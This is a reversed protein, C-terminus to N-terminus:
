YLFSLGCWRGWCPTSPARCGSCVPQPAVLPPGLAPCCGRRNFGCASTASGCTSPSPCSSSNAGFDCEGFFFGFLRGSFNFGLYCAPAFASIRAVIRFLRQFVLLVLRLILRLIAVLLVAVLRPFAVCLVVVLLTLWRQAIMRKVCPWFWTPLAHTKQSSAGDAGDLPLPDVLPPVAPPGRSSAAQPGKAEQFQEKLSPKLSLVADTLKALTSITKKNENTPRWRMARKRFDDDDLAAGIAEGSKEGGNIRKAGFEKIAASALELLSRSGGGPESLQPPRLESAKPQSAQVESAM